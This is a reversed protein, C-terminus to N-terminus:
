AAEGGGDDASGGMDGVNGLDLDVDSDLDSPLDEPTFQGVDIGEREAV